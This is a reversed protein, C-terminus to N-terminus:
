LQLCVDHRCYKGSGHSLKNERKLDCMIEYLDEIMSVKPSQYHGSYVVKVDLSRLLKMSEFLEEPDTSEYHCYITGEYLLDGAYLAKRSADYISISGPSHGPTHHIELGELTYEHIPKPNPHKLPPEVFGELFEPKVDKKINGIVVARPLPLGNKVWDLDKEHVYVHEFEHVNGIHDWHGHTIIVDIPKNDITELVPKLPKLGTGTDILLNRTEGIYYYLNTHEWHHPETIRFLRDDIKEIEYWNM